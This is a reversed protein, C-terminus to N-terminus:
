GAGGQATGTARPHARRVTEKLSEISVHTYIQTTALSEHGLLQQVTKLDAGGDLLHTAFSHRLSHPSTTPPLGVCKAWRKIVNQVTRTTLRQGLNNTFLASGKTAAIREAVIYKQISDKATNGFLVIREKNGKGFVRISRGEFDVVGLDISVLESVRIGASYLLELMAKDRLPTRGPSEQDLLSTAQIHTLSKPLRKRRIPAELLETPNTSLLAQENLFRIFTRLTSLKRARTGPTKAHRRLYLRLGDETLGEVIPIETGLAALDSGYARVTQPSRRVELHNLFLQIARDVEM